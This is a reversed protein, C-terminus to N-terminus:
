NKKGEIARNRIESLIQQIGQNQPDMALARRFAQEAGTVDDMSLKTLGIRSYIGPFTTDLETVKQFEALARPFQKLKFYAVGLGNYVDVKHPFFPDLALTKEFERIAQKHQNQQGYIIGLNYHPQAMTPDIQLSKQILNRAKHIKGQLFYLNGLNSYAEAFGPNLALAKEFAQRADAWKKQKFYALGLNNYAKYFRPELLLAKKHELIAKELQGKAAYANGLNDHYAPIRPQLDIAQKFAEIAADFKNQQLFFNGQSNFSNATEPNLYGLAQLRQKIAQDENSTKTSFDTENSPGIEYSNVRQIPYKDLFEGSIAETLVKGPMDLAPASGLLYLITPAIDLIRAGSLKVNKRIPPGAMLIIGTDSHWDVAEGSGIKAGTGSSLTKLRFGHDSVVIVTTPQSLNHLIEGLIQDQYVYFASIASGFKAYLAHTTASSGTDSYSTFLHGFSDIGKFYVALFDFSNAEQLYRTVKRYTETAAIVATASYVPDIKRKIGKEFENRSIHMFRSITSYDIHKPLVILPRLKAFISDPYTLNRTSPSTQQQPDFDLYTLRDSVMVGNVKEVPWTVLWGVVGTSIQQESLIRWVPKVRRLTSTVPIQRGTRTDTVLFDFIGHEDPMKGTAITTWIMPSLLPRMSHLSGYSGERMLRAFHPLKGQQILPLIRNWDAGDLGILLVKTPVVQRTPHAQSESVESIAEGSKITKNEPLLNKGDMDDPPKIDLLSLITPPLDILAPKRAMVVKRNLFLVGPVCEPDISVHDGSWKRLNDSLITKELGGLSSTQSVRYGPNLGVILDPAEPVAAGAYIDERKYVHRVVRQGTKEDKLQLLKEIIQNRVREYEDGPLLAGQRERGKVNLYIGGIGAAYAQTQRWDVGSFYKEGATFSSQTSIRKLFKNKWLWTNLNLGRRFDGFGHDSFIMMVAESDLRSQIHGIVRDLAIYYNTIAHRYKEAADPDYLPHQKDIYRWFLHQIRDLSGFVAIFLDASTKTILHLVMKEQQHLTQYADKLIADEDLYGENLAWTDIDWGLTKYLGISQALENAFGAPSSIPYAPKRPDINIPGMYLKVEPQISSLYFRAIGQISSFVGMPFKMEFWRSWEGPRLEQSQGSLLIQISQRNQGFKLELPIRSMVQPQRLWNIPGPVFSLAKDNIFKLTIVKEDKKQSGPETTYFTFLGTTGRLDPTEMGSLIKGNLNGPPFTEPCRFVIAKIRKISNLSWFPPRMLNNIFRPRSWPLLHLLSKGDVWTTPAYKLQYTKPDRKLFGFLGTKGPNYGTVFTAWAVPSEAPNTTRLRTYTGSNAIASLHPLKGNRILEETIKADMGDIGLAVVRLRHNHSESECGFSLFVALIFTFLFLERLKFISVCARCQSALSWLGSKFDWISPGLGNLKNNNCKLWM